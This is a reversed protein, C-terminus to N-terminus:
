VGGRWVAPGPGRNPLGLLCGLIPRTAHANTDCLFRAFTAAHPLSDQNASQLVAASSRGASAVRRDNALSLAEKSERRGKRSGGAKKCASMCYVRELFLM